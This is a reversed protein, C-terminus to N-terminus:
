LWECATTLCSPWCSCSWCPQPATHAMPPL